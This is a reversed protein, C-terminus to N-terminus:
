KTQNLNLELYSVTEGTNNWNKIESLKKAGYRKELVDSLGDAQRVHMTIKSYNQDIVESLFGQCMQRVQKFEKGKYAFDWIYFTGDEVELDSNDTKFYRSPAGAIYGIKEGDAEIYKVVGEPIGLLYRFVRPPIHLPQPFIEQDLIYLDNALKRRDNIDKWSAYLEKAIM